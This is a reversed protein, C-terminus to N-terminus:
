PKLLEPNEYINGIVESEGAEIKNIGDWSAWKDDWKIEYANGRFLYIDGEYMEKGYNDLLGTFQQFEYFESEFTENLSDNSNGLWMDIFKKEEKDWVRFKIVRSM